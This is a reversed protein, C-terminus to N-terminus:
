ACAVAGDISTDVNYICGETHTMMSSSDASAVKDVDGSVAQGVGATGWIDDYGENPTVKDEVVTLVQDM